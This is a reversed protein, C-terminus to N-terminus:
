LRSGTGLCPKSIPNDKAAELAAQIEAEVESPTTKYKRAITRIIESYEM